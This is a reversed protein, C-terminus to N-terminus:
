SLNNSSNGNNEEMSFIKKCWDHIFLPKIEEINYPLYFMKENIVPFLKNIVYVNGSQVFNYKKLKRNTTIVKTKSMMADYIRTTPGTQKPLPIDLVAKSKMLIEIYQDYLLPQNYIFSENHEFKSFLYIKFVYKNKYKKYIRKIIKLRSKHATGVIAIDYKKEGDNYTISKQLFMPLYIYKNKKCDSLNYSFIKNFYNFYTNKVLLKLDDWQYLIFISNKNNEKLLQYAKDPFIDGKICLIYEYKKSFISNGKIKEFINNEISIRKKNKIGPIIKRIVRCLLSSTWLKRYLEAEEENNYYDVEFSKSLEQIIIEEYNFFKPALFLLKDM